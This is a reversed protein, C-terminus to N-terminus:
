VNPDVESPEDVVAPPAAPGALATFQNNACSSWGLHHVQRNLVLINKVRDVRQDLALGEWTPQNTPALTLSGDPETLRTVGGDPKHVIVQSHASKWGGIARDAEKVANALTVELPPMLERGKSEGAGWGADEDDPMNWLWTNDENPGMHTYDIHAVAAMSGWVFFEHLEGQTHFFEQINVGGEEFYKPGKNKRL